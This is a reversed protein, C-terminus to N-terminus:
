GKISRLDKAHKRMLQNLEKEQTQLLAKQTALYTKYNPSTAAKNRLQKETHAMIAYAEAKANEGFLSGMDSLTSQNNKVVEALAAQIAKNDSASAKTNKRPAKTQTDEMIIEMYQSSNQQKRRAAQRKATAASTALADKVAADVGQFPYDSLVHKGIFLTPVSVSSLKHAKMQAQLAEKSTPNKMDYQVLTVQGQYTQQFSTDWRDAKLQKCELSDSHTFLVAQIPARKPTNLAPQKAPATPTAQTQEATAPTQEQNEQLPTTEPTTQQQPLIPNGEEDMLPTKGELPNAAQMPSIGMRKILLNGTQNQWYARIKEDQEKSTCGAVLLLGSIILLSTKKM